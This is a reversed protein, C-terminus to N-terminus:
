RDPQSRLLEYSLAGLLEGEAVDHCSRCDRTARLAGLMRVRNQSAVTVVDEGHFLAALSIVEFEDLQRTPADRLEEMAPLSESVYVRIEDSMLLGVLELRNLKWDQLGDPDYYNVRRDPHVVDKTRLLRHDFRDIRHGQFGVVHDADRVWGMSDGQGFELNSTVHLSRFAAVSPMSGSKEPLEFIPEHAFALPSYYETLLPMPQQRYKLDFPTPMRMRSIGFGPAEIFRKAGDAHLQELAKGRVSWNWPGVPTEEPVKYESSHLQRLQELRAVDNVQTLRDRISEVPFRERLALILKDQEDDPLQVRFWHFSKADHSDILALYEAATKVVRLSESEEQGSDDKALSHCAIWTAAVIWACCTALSARTQSGGRCFTKFM